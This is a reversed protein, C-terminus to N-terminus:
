VIQERVGIVRPFRPVGLATTDGYSIRLMKGKFDSEFKTAMESFLKRREELTEAPRASFERGNPMKLIWIIAGADRGEGSKYGAIEFESDHVPKLKLVAKSRIEKRTGPEYMGDPLRLVAGEHGQDLYEKYAKEIQVSKNMLTQTVIHLNPYKEPDKSFIMKLSAYRQKFPVSSDVIDFIYFGLTSSDAAANSFMHHIQQHPTNPAWCEGDFTIDDYQPQDRILAELQTRIHM